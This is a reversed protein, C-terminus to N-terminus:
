CCSAIFIEILMQFCCHMKQVWWYALFLFIDAWILFQTSAPHAWRYPFSISCSWTQLSNLWISLTQSFISPHHIHDEALGIRVLV